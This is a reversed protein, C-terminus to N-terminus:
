NTDLNESSGDVIVKLIGEIWLQLKEVDENSLLGNRRLMGDKNIGWNSTFYCIALIQCIIEKEIFEGKTIEPLLVKIVEIIETYNEEILYGKYPRLMGIFGTESKPNDIDDHSYSHYKLIERAEEVTM